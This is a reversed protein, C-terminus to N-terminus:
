WTLVLVVVWSIALVAEGSQTHHTGPEMGENVKDKVDKQGAKYKKVIIVLVLIGCVFGAILVVAMSVIAATLNSGTMLVTHTCMYLLIFYLTVM